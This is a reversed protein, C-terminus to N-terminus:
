REHQKRWAPLSAQWRSSFGVAPALIEAGKFEHDLARLSQELRTCQPCVELHQALKEKEDPTLQRDDLLMNEYPQHNM